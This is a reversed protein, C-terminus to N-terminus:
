TRRGVMPRAVWLLAAAQFLALGFFIGIGGPRVFSAVAISFATLVFLRTASLLALRGAGAAASDAIRAAAARTFRANGWGLALGACMFVVLSTAM